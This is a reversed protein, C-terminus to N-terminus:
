RAAGAVAVVGGPVHGGAIGPLAGLGEGPVVGPLEGRNGAAGATVAAVDVVGAPVHQQLFVGAGRGEVEGALLDGEVRGGLRGGTDAVVGQRAAADGIAGAGAGGVSELDGVLVAGGDEGEVVGGLDGGPALEGGVALGAAGRDGPDVVAAEQVFRGVGVGAQGDDAGTM